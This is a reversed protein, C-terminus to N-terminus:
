LKTTAQNMPSLFEPLAYIGPYETLLEVPRVSRVFDVIRFMDPADEICFLM